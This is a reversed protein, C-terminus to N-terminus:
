SCKNNANVTLAGAILLRNSANVTGTIRVRLQGSAFNANDPDIVTAASALVIAAANHVYSTTGAIGGLVPKDNVATVNVDKTVLTSTGGDGDTIGVSIKGCATPNDSVNSYVINRLVATAAAPTGSDNFTVVLPATGTGGTFTGIVTGNLLVQSNADTMTATNRIALRDNASGGVTYHVTLQGRSFNPSDSDAITALASIPKATMVTYALAAGFNSIVPKM